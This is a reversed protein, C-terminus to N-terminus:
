LCSALLDWMSDDDLQQSMLAPAGTSPVLDGWSEQGQGTFLSSGSQSQLPIEIPPLAETPGLYDLSLALGKRGEPPLYRSAQSLLTPVALEPVPDLPVCASAPLTFRESPAAPM